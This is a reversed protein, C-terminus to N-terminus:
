FTIVKNKLKLDKIEKQIEDRFRFSSILIPYDYKHIDSPAIIDVNNLKSGILHKNRDIFKYVKKGLNTSNLLKQTLAGSGWVLIEPPLSDITKKVDQFRKKSLSIYSSMTKKLNNGKQWVSYIVREDTELHVCTFNKMLLFLHTPSFFNIHETSFEYYPEEVAEHFRAANPVSIFLYGNEDVLKELKAVNARVDKLHELVMALIVYQFKKGPKFSSITATEVPINFEKKAVSKCRPSPDVGLLSRYGEQKYIHLLNGTSCGIDLISSDKHTFKKAISFYKNHLDEDRGHEYKSM